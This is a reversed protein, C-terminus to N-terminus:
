LECLAIHYTNKFIIKKLFFGWCISLIYRSLNLDTNWSTYYLENARTLDLHSKSYIIKLIMDLSSIKLMEQSTARLHIGCSRASSQHPYHSLATLCCAMVQALTPGSRQWWVADSPWLSNIHSCALLIAQCHASVRTSILTVRASILPVVLYPASMIKGFM